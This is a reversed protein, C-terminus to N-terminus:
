PPLMDRRPTRASPPPTSPPPPPPPAAPPPPPPRPPPPPPPPPRPPRRPLPPPPPPRNTAPPAPPPCPNDPPPLAQLTPPPARLVPPKQPHPLHGFMGFARRGRYREVTIADDNGVRVVAAHDLVGGSAFLPLAPAAISTSGLLKDVGGSDGEPGVAAHIEALI